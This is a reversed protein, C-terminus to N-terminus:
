LLVIQQWDSYFDGLPFYGVYKLKEEKLDYEYVFAQWADISALGAVAYRSFIFYKGNATQGILSKPKLEEDGYYFYNLRQYATNGSEDFFDHTLHVLPQKESNYLRLPYEMCTYYKEGDAYFPVLNEGSETLESWGKMGVGRVAEQYDVANGSTLDFAKKESDSCIFNGVRYICNKQANYYDNKFPAVDGNQMSEFAFAHAIFAGNQYEYYTGDLIYDVYKKGNGYPSEKSSDAYKRADDYVRHSYSIEKTSVNLIKIEGNEYIIGHNEDALTFLKPEGGRSVNWDRSFTPALNKADYVLECEGTQYDISIV